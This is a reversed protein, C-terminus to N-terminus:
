FLLNINYYLLTQTIRLMHEAYFDKGFGRFSDNVGAIVICYQPSSEIVKRSSYAEKKAKFMNEYVVKSNAGFYGSSIFEANIGIEPAKVKLISDLDKIGVWSDGIVGIKLKGEERQPVIKDYSYTKAYSWKHSIFFCLVILLVGVGITIKKKM